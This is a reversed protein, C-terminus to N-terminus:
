QEKTEEKKKPQEGKLAALLAKLKRRQAQYSLTHQARMAKYVKEVSALEAEVNEVTVDKGTLM